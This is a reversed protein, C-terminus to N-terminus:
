WCHYYAQGLECPPFDPPQSSCTMQEVEVNSTVVGGQSTRGSCPVYKWGVTIGDADLYTYMTQYQPLAQATTASYLGAFAVISALITRRVKM